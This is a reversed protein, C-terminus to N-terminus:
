AARNASVFRSELDEIVYAIPNRSSTVFASSVKAFCSRPECDNSNRPLVPRSFESRISDSRNASMPRSDFVALHGLTVGQADLLPVGLYSEIGLDVLIQDSPFLQYTHRPHHCLNGSVVEECPTGALDFEVNQHFHDRFWYALTRALEVDAFEAVFAYEADVAASLHRVLSQLFEEGTSQATGALITLLAQVDDARSAISSLEVAKLHGEATDAVRPDEDTM